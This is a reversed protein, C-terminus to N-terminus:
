NVVTIKDKVSHVGDIDEALDIARQREDANRVTGMLTVVGGETNAAIDPFARLAIKVRETIAMDEPSAPTETLVDPVKTPIEKPDEAAPIPKTTENAQAILPAGVFLATAMLFISLIYLANKM